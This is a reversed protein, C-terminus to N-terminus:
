RVTNRAALWEIPDVAKGGARLEFYLMSDGTLGTDGVTGVPHGAKVRDGVDVLLSSAHAYLSVDGRGHDIILLLGYGKLWDAFAVVGDFAARIVSGRNAKIDIGKRQLFTDFKPHKQRGFFAVVQGDSPWRLIGKRDTLGNGGEHLQALNEQEELLARLVDEVRVSSRELEVVAQEFVTQEDRIRAILRRKKEHEAHLVALAEEVEHQKGRLRKTMRDYQQQQQELTVLAEAKHQMKDHASESLSSFVRDRMYVDDHERAALLSPTAIDLRSVKYHKQLRAHLLARFAEHQEKAARMEEGVRRFDNGIREVERLLRELEKQKKHRDHDIRQLVELLSTERHEANNFARRNEKLERQILELTAQNDQIKGSLEKERDIAGGGAFVKCVSYSSFFSLVIIIPLVKM